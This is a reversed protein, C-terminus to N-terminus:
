QLDGDERVTVKGEGFGHRRGRRKVGGEHPAMSAGWSAQRKMNVLGQM